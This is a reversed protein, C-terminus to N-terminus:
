AKVESRKVKARQKPDACRWEALRCYDGSLDVSIGTLGLVDAVMAVTGTGGFPDLVVGDPPCWGEIIRRPWEMPFAAFHRVALEPPVRLPQTPISWVSSPLKGLPHGDTHRSGDGTMTREGPQFAAGGHRRGLTTSATAHPERLTDMNAFYRPQKTFHFWTEHSRRCRDKVSEPMGNPKSWVVEQRLVLELDDVCRLAYRWPVGMLSKVPVEGGGDLGAKRPVAPRSRDTAGQLSTRGKSRNGAYTAYKDGLNVWLSGTPKLVRVAERTAEILAGVFESPTPEAGIQGEYHEGGDQYSRLGFYPPSTVVLDVSADALPLALATGRIIQYSM